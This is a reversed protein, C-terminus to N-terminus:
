HHSASKSSGGKSSKTSKKSSSKGKVAAQEAVETEAKMEGKNEKAREARAGAPNGHNQLQVAKMEHCMAPESEARKHNGQAYHKKRDDAAREREKAAGAANGQKEFQTARAEACAASTGGHAGGPL